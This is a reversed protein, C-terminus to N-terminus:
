PLPSRLTMAPSAQIEERKDALNKHIFSETMIREQHFNLTSCHHGQQGKPDDSAAGKKERKV